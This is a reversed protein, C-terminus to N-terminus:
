ELNISTNGDTLKVVLGLSDITALAEESYEGVVVVETAQGADLTGEVYAMDNLLMTTLANKASGNLNIKYRAHSEPMNVEVTHDTINTLAFSIILLKNGSTANMVFYSELSDPYSSKVEYGLYDFELEDSLGLAAEISSYTSPTEGTNDIIDVSNVNANIDTESSPEKQEELVPEPTPEPTPTPITYNVPERLLKDGHTKDYHLLSEAAYEVVMSKEVENLEPIKSAFMGCGSLLSICILLGLFVKLRKM